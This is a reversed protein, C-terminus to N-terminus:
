CEHSKATLTGKRAVCAAVLSRRKLVIDSLGTIRVELHRSRPSPTIVAKPKVCGPAFVLSSRVFERDRPSPEVHVVTSAEIPYM